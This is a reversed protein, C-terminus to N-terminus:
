AKVAKGSYRLGFTVGACDRSADSRMTVPVSITRESGAQIRQPNWSSPVILNGAPCREVGTVTITMEHIDVAFKNKNEFHLPLYETHGPYLGGVSGNVALDQGQDRGGGGGGPKAPQPAKAAGREPSQTTEPSQPKDPSPTQEPSQPKEPSLTKDASPTTEPSQTKGPSQTREPAQTTAPGSQEPSAPSTSSSSAPDIASRIPETKVPRHHAVDGATTHSSGEDTVEGTNNRSTAPSALSTDSNPAPATITVGGVETEHSRGSPAAAPFLTSAIAVTAVLGVAGAALQAVVHTRM